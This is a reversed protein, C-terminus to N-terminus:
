INMTGTVALSRPVRWCKLRRDLGGREAQSGSLAEDIAEMVKAVRAADTQRDRDGSRTRFPDTRSKFFEVLM